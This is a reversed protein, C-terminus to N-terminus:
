SAATYTHYDGFFYQLLRNKQETDAMTRRVAARIDLVGVISLPNGAFRHDAYCGGVPTFGITSYFDRLGGAKEDAFFDGVIHTASFQTVAHRLAERMLGMGVSRSRVEPLTMLHGFEVLRNGPLRLSRLDQMDECPLGGHLDAVVKVAGIPNTEAFALIYSAAADFRDFTDATDRVDLLRGQDRVYVADRLRLVAARDTASRAIRYSM